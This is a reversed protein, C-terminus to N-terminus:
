ISKLPYHDIIAKLTYANYANIWFAYQEERSFVAFADSALQELNALYRDLAARNKKLAAYDVRDDKVYGKLVQTLGSHSQDFAKQSPATTEAPPPSATPQETETCASAFSSLLWVGPTLLFVRVFRM